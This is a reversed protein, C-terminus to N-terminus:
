KHLSTLINVIKKSQNATQLRKQKDINANNRQDDPKM